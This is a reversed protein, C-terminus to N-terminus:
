PLYLYPRRGDLDPPYEPHIKARLNAAGEPEQGQALQERANDFSKGIASLFDRGQQNLQDGAHRPWFVMDVTTYILVGVTTELWRFTGLYFANQFNPFNDGWVVLPVFAAVYWAYSNRSSQMFYGIVTIYAAFALMTAWRDHNFLGLILFGVAVGLTTGVVRMIGKGITAGSTGLSIIVIALGGYKPVDWNAWLALWYFLVM